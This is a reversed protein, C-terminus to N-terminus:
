LSPILGTAWVSLLTTTDFNKHVWVTNVRAEIFWRSELNWIAALSFVGGANRKDRFNGDPENNTDFALYPGAGAALLLKRNLISKRTWLQLTPGDRHHNPMHGENLWSLSWGFHDGIGEMYSIQWSYSTNRDEHSRILGGVVDLLYFDQSFATHSVTLIFFMLFTTYFAPFKGSKFYDKM